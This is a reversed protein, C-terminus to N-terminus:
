LESNERSIRSARKEEYMAKDALEYVEEFSLTDDEITATGFSVSLLLKRDSKRQLKEKMERILAEAEKEGCKTCLILFEDGGVRMAICNEPITEKIVTAVRQLLLDGYEHGLTDNTRKLYNCDAMILSVPCDGARAFKRSRSEMYNRNYLGTLSDKFSLEEAQKMASIDRVAVLVAQVRGNDDYKQPILVVSYWVGHVDKVEKGLYQKGKIREAITDLELFNMVSPYCEPDVEKRCIAFLFEYPNQHEEYVTRMRESTKLPELEMRDVHLLFTSSFSTSIANIIRLQKEMKNINNKDFYRQVSLILLCLVLYLMFGIIIFNSRNSFVENSPYAVYVYYNEYVRRLGYWNTDDFRFGTLEEEKWKISDSLKRGQESGLDGVAENNTSLVQTGDTIIIMPNKYFSTNELLSTITYEYPDRSPKVKSAYCLILGSDDIGSVVAFDYPVDQITEQSVYTKQPHKLIDRVTDKRITDEWISFSDAHDMDGQAVVSLNEDLILVGGVHETRIFDNLFDSDKLKSSSIYTKLGIAADLLDQQSRASNGREYNDFKKCETKLYSVTEEALSYTEREDQYGITTGLGLLVLVSIILFLGSFIHFLKVSSLKKTKTM